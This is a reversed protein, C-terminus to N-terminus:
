RKSFFIAAVVGIFLAAAMGWAIYVLVAIGAIIGAVLGAFVNLTQSDSLHVILKQAAPDTNMFEHVEDFGVSYLSGSMHTSKYTGCIRAMLRQPQKTVWMEYRTVGDVSESELEKESRVAIDILGGDLEKVLVVQRNM